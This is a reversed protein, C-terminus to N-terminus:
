IPDKSKMGLKRRLELELVGLLGQLYGRDNKADIRDDEDITVDAEVSKLHEIKFRLAYVISKIQQPNLDM